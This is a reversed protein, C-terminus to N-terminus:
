RLTKKVVEVVSDPLITRMAEEYGECTKNGYISCPLNPYKHLDPTLGNSLPQLFPFFGAFPHTAGWLTITKVGFISALHANASDMAIMADLNSIIKLEEELNYKGACSNTIPFKELLLNIQEKEKKGGGFFYIEMQPEKLLLEIVKEMLDLPYMKYSYQAFPAVGIKKAKESKFEFDKPLPRKSLLGHHTLEIEFGLKRFVDAYREHTSKLPTFIKNKTRTLAKKEKRGKDIVEILKISSLFTRLIKTRLVNHLDAIADFKLSKLEAALKWIGFVGKYEKDIDVGMFNVNELHSFLPKLFPRSVVTVKIGKNQLILSKLVPVTMAVDGMASFRLVLIHKPKIM